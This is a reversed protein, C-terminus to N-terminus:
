SGDQREGGLGPDTGDDPNQKGGGRGGRKWLRKWDDRLEAMGERWLEEDTIPSPGGPSSMGTQPNFSRAELAGKTWKWLWRRAKGM